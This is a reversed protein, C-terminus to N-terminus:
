MDGFAGFKPFLALRHQSGDDWLPWAAEFVETMQQPRAVDGFKIIPIRMRLLRHNKDSHLHLVPLLARSQDSRELFMAQAGQVEASVFHGFQVDTVHNPPM